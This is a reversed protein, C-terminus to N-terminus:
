NSEPYLVFKAFNDFKIYKKAYTLLDDLTLNEIM